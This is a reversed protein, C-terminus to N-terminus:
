SEFGDDPQGQDFGGGADTDVDEPPLDFGIPADEFVPEESLPEDIPPDVIEAPPDAPMSDGDGITGAPSEPPPPDEAGEGFGLHTGPPAEVVDTQEAPTDTAPHTQTPADVRASDPIRSVAPGDALQGFPSPPPPLGVTGLVGTNSVNGAHSEPQGKGQKLREFLADMDEKTGGKYIPGNPPYDSVPSAAHLDGLMWHDLAYPDADVGSFVNGITDDTIEAQQRAAASLNGTAQGHRNLMQQVEDASPDDSM